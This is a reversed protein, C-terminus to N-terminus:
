AKKLIWVDQEGAGPIHELLKMGKTWKKVFQPPQFAAYTRHGEKVQGRVVLNGARFIKKEQDTLKELFGEGHLTLFLVGGKRLVRTLESLWKNHAEESLHTFISIGYIFDFSEDPFSLPPMLQNKSFGIGALNNRCWDITKGNYDTGSYSKAEPVLEPLHRLVRAPGCGWDLIDANDLKIHKGVLGALWDATKRGNEYYRQYDLLFSEYMLYDPPLILGPHERLFSSNKKRMKLRHFHYRIRDSAHMLGTLRLINSIRSKIMM